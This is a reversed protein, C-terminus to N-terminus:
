RPRRPLLLKSSVVHTARKRGPCTGSETEEDGCIRCRPHGNPFLWEAAEFKHPRQAEPTKARERIEKSEAEFARAHAAKAYDGPGSGGRQVSDVTHGEYTMNAWEAPTIDGMSAKKPLGKAERGAALIEEETLFRGQKKKAEQMEKLEAGQDKAEEALGEPDGSKLVDVLKVHEDIADQLPMSYTGDEIKESASVPRPRLLKSVVRGSRLQAAARASALSGARSRPGRSGGRPGGPGPLEGQYSSDRPADAGGQNPVSWSPPEIGGAHQVIQERAADADIGGNAYNNWTEDIAQQTKLGKNGKQDPRFLGRVAEWTISQLERPQIGVKAAARRYAEAYFSYLGSVGYISSSKPGPEGPGKRATGNETRLVKGDPGYLRPAYGTGFNHSVERSDSSLPRLLAAAVAHTDITVDGGEAGSSHPAILNNYFSRVKHGEGISDSISKFDGPGLLIQIATIITNFSNWRLGVPAGTKGRDWDGFEGEPSVIRCSHVNNAEDWARIWVAMRYASGEQQLQALTKGELEPLLKRPSPGNATTYGGWTTSSIVKTMAPTWPDNKHQTMATIVREALSVNQYWGQQPSLAALVGAVKQPEVGFKRAWRHAIRNGGVYWQKSRKRHNEGWSHYLWILNDVMEEVIAEAQEQVTGQNTFRRFNPYTEMLAVNHALMKTNRSVAHLGPQLREPGHPDELPVARPKGNPEPKAWPVRPSIRMDHLSNRLDDEDHEVVADWIPRLATYGGIGQLFAPFQPGLVGQLKSVFQEFTKVTGGELAQTAVDHFQHLALPTVGKLDDATIRVGKSACRRLLFGQKWGTWKRPPAEVFVDVIDGMVEQKRNRAEILLARAAERNKNRLCEDVKEQYEQDMVQWVQRVLAQATTIPSPAAPAHVRYPKSGHNREGTSEVMHVEGDLSGDRKPEVYLEFGFQYAGDLTIKVVRGEDTVLDHDLFATVPAGSANIRPSRPNFAGSNGIASKVQTPKWVIYHKTSPGMQMGPGSFPGFQARADQIVGDFGLLQYVRAIFPGPGGPVDQVEYSHERVAKEFEFATFGESGDFHESAEQWVKAGDCMLERGAQRCAEYMRGVIRSEVWDDNRDFRGGEFRTGGQPQVIVPKLIRLYTVYVSGQNSGKLEKEALEKAKKYLVDWEDADDWDQFESEHKSGEWDMDRYESVIQEARREIWSTLDAGDAKAYNENVDTTDSTFYIAKGYFGEEHGRSADFRDFEHTSGHYVKLPKGDKGRVVSGRFWAKFEPTETPDVRPVQTPMTAQEARELLQEEAPTPNKALLLKATVNM